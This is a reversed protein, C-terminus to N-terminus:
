GKQIIILVEWVTQNQSPADGKLSILQFSLVKNKVISTLASWNWTKWFFVNGKNYMSKHSVIWFFSKRKSLQKPAKSKGDFINGCTLLPSNQILVFTLLRQNWQKQQMHELKASVKTGGGGGRMEKSKLMWGKTLTFRSVSLLLESKQDERSAM